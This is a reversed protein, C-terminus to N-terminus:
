RAGVWAPLRGEEEPRQRVVPLIRGAVSMETPVIWENEPCREPEPVVGLDLGTGPDVLEWRRYVTLCGDTVAGLGPDRELRDVLAWVGNVSEGDWFVVYKGNAAAISACRGAAGDVIQVDALAPEESDAGPQTIM